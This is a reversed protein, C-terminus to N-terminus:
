PIYHDAEAIIDGPDVLKAEFHINKGWTGSRDIVILQYPLTLGPLEYNGPGVSYSTLKLTVQNGQRVIERIIKDKNVQGVLFL